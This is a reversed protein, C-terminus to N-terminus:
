NIHVWILSSGMPDTQNPNMTDIWPMIFDLRFHAQIIWSM